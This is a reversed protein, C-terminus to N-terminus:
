QPGAAADKGTAHGNPPPEVPLEMQGGLIECRTAWAQTTLNQMRSKWAKNYDEKEREADEIAQLIMALKQGLLESM